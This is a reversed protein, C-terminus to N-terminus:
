DNSSMREQKILLNTLENDYVKENTAKVSHEYLQNLLHIPLDGPGTTLQVARGGCWSYFGTALTAATLYDAPTPAQSIFAAVMTTAVCGTGTVYGLLADGYQHSFVATQNATYDTKGTAVVVTHYLNAVKLLHETIKGEPQGGDVGKGNSKAGALAAIESYNGCVAAIQYESLLHEVYALRNSLAAIGVPDLIVPIGKENATKISLEIAKMKAENFPSGINIVIAQSQASVLPSADPEDTMIPSAGIALLANAQFNTTVKNTLCNILPNQEVIEKLYFTMQEKM